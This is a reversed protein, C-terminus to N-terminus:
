IPEARRAGCRQRCTPASLRKLPHRRRDRLWDAGAAKGGMVGMTDVAGDLGGTAATMSRRRCGASRQDHRMATPKSTPAQLKSSMAHSVSCQPMRGRMSCHRGCISSRAVWASPTGTDIPAMRTRELPQTGASSSLSTTSLSECCRSANRRGLTLAANDACESSAKSNRRSCSCMSPAASSNRRSRSPRKKTAPMSIAGLPAAALLAAISQSKECRSITIRLPRRRQISSCRAAGASSSSFTSRTDRLPRRRWSM